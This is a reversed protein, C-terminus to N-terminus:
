RGGKELIESLAALLTKNEEDTGATIRLFGEFCRVCISRKLLESYIEKVKLTKLVVFNTVTKQVAIQDPCSRSLVILGKELDKKLEIIKRIRKKLYDTKKLLVGGAAQTMLNINFPSRAKNLQSIIAPHGIAFGLRAAAFGFAKSATRLVIVNEYACIGPLVSEGFFDMYAEDIIFLCDISKALRLMEERKIGQGTPNCPNSFILIDPKYKKVDDIIQDVSIEMQADKCAVTIELECLGAYLAYMSFDPKLLMLRGGRNTFSGLIVSILEDSGNGAVINSAPVGYIGAALKRIDEAKPDPYRNFSIAKVADAIEEAIEPPMKLPSENADLKVKYLDETPDYAKLKLLKEPLKM